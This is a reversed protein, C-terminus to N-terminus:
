TKDWYTQAPMIQRAKHAMTGKCQIKLLCLNDQSHLSVKLTLWKIPKIDNEYEKGM